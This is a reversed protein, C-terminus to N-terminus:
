NEAEKGLWNETRTSWTGIKIKTQNENRQFNGILIKDCKRSNKGLSMLLQAVEQLHNDYERPVSPEWTIKFFVSLASLKADRCRFKEWQLHKEALSTVRQIIHPLLVEIVKKQISLNSKGYFYLIWINRVSINLFSYMKVCSILMLLPGRYTELYNKLNM